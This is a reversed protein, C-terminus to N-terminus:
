GRAAVTAREDPAPVSKATRSNRWALLVLAAWAVAIASYLATSWPWEIGFYHVLKQSNTLVIAGGVASGLLAPKIRSVLWAALPAAIVGGAALGLVIPLNQVFEDRLGILFGVSASAAVLFESASM